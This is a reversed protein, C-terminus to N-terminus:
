TVNQGNADHQRPITLLAALTNLALTMTRRSGPALSQLYAAAPHQSRPLAAEPLLVLVPEPEVAVLDVVVTRDDNPDTSDPEFVPTTM